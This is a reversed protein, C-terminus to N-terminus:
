RDWGIVAERDNIKRRKWDELWVPAAVSQLETHTHFLVGRGGQRTGGDIRVKLIMKELAESDDLCRQSDEGNLALVLYSQKSVNVSGKRVWWRSLTRFASEAEQQSTM